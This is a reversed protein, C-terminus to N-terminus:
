ALLPQRGRLRPEFRPDIPTLNSRDPWLCQLVPFIRDRYYWRAYGLYEDLAAPSVDVFACEFPVELLDPYRVNPVFVSGSKIQSGIENLLYGQLEIRQGVVIVEPHGFSHFLGVTYAFRPGEEDEEVIVIHWGVRDIDSLLQKDHEDLSAPDRFSNEDNPM